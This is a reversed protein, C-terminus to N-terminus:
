SVEPPSFGFRAIDDRCGDAVIDAAKSTWVPPEVDATNIHPLNPPTVGIEGCIVPWQEQLKSFQFPRVDPTCITSYYGGRASYFSMAYRLWDEFPLTAALYFDRYVFPVRSTALRQWKTRQWRFHSAAIEWPSRVITFKFIESWEPIHPRIQGAFSHCWLGNQMRNPPLTNAYLTGLETQRQSLAQTISYGGTRPIHVFVFRHPTYLM